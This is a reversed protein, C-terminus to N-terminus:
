QFGCCKPLVLGFRIGSITTNFNFVKFRESDNIYRITSELIMRSVVSNFSESGYLLIHCMHQDPYVRIDNLIIESVSDLLVRRLDIYLQYHIFFHVSSESSQGCSCLPSDCDFRHNFRHLKLDSLDVRLRALLNLGVRDNM